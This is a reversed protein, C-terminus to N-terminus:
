EGGKIDYFSDFYKDEECIPLYSYYMKRIVSKPVRERGIRKDNRELCTKLPIIFNVGLVKVDKLILKSLVKDRAKPNLHTADVYINEFSNDDIAAQISSIFIKFVEDERSFYDENDKLLSFRIIDRSIHISDIRNSMENKIWTSKGSGPIGTVMILKKM